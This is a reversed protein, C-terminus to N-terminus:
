RRDTLRKRRLALADGRLARRLLLFILGFAGLTLPNGAPPSTGPASCGCGGASPRPLCLSTGGDVDCALGAPCDAESTCMVTCVGARAPDDSFCLESECQINTLCPDGVPLPPLCAGCGTDVDPHCVYSLPCNEAVSADCPITCVGRDCFLSACDTSAECATGFGGSGGKGAVCLGTGCADTLGPDCYFGSPCSRPDLGDCTLTCKRGGPLDACEKSDCDMDSECTTGLGPVTVSRRVCLGTGEICREDSACDMATVCSELPAPECVGLVCDQGLPCGELACDVPEGERPYLACIGTEDDENMLLYGRSYSANMAAEADASHGLGLYHGLEHLAISYANVAPLSGREQVWDYAEGNFVVDAEVICGGFDACPQVQVTTLGIASIDHPWDADIFGVTSEGDAVDLPATTMTLPALPVDACQALTWDGLAREVEAQTTGPAIAELDASLPGLGVPVPGEWSPCGTKVCTWASASAPWTMAALTLALAGIVWRASAPIV